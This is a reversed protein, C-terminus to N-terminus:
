GLHKLIFELADCRLMMGDLSSVLYGKQKFELPLFLGAYVSKWTVDTRFFNKFNDFKTLYLLITYVNLASRYFPSSGNIYNKLLAFDSFRFLVRQSGNADTYISREVILGNNKVNSSSSVRVGNTIKCEVVANHQYMTIGCHDLKNFRVTGTGDILFINEPDSISFDYPSVMDLLKFIQSLVISCNNPFIEALTLEPYYDELSYNHTGCGFFYHKNVVKDKVIYELFWSIIVGNTIPDLTVESSSSSTCYNNCVPPDLESFSSHYKIKNNNTNTNTNIPLNHEKIILFNLMYPNKFPTGVPFNRSLNCVRTLRDCNHCKFKNNIGPNDQLEMSENVTKKLTGLNFMCKPDTDLNKISFKNSIIKDLISLKKSKYYELVEQLNTCEAPYSIDCVDNM